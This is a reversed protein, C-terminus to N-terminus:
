RHMEQAHDKVNDRADHHFLLWACLLPFLMGYALSVLFVDLEWARTQLRALQVTTVLLFGAAGGVNALGMWRAFRPARLWLACVSAALGVAMGSQAGRAVLVDPELLLSYLVSALAAVYATSVVLRPVRAHDM